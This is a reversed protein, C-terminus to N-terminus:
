IANRAMQWCRCESVKVRYQYSQGKVLATDSYTLLLGSYVFSWEDDVSERKYLDYQSVVGNPLTPKFWNIVLETSSIVISQLDEIGPM